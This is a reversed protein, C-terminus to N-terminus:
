CNNEAAALLRKYLFKELLGMKHKRDLVIASLNLLFSTFATFCKDALSGSINNKEYFILHVQM